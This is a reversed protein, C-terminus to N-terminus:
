SEMYIKPNNRRTRQVTLPLKIPIVNLRYIAKLLIAMKVINKWDLLM